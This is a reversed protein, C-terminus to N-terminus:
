SPRDFTLSAWHSEWVVSDDAAARALRVANLLFRGGGQLPVVARGDADTRLTTRTVGDAERFIAIQIDAAGDGNWLLRVPLEDLGSAFPNALAVLELPMGIAADRDEPSPPGVQVLAKACRTYFEAFGTRPLDAALHAEVAGDLGEYDAYDVFTTWDDYDLRDATSHYTIVYLGPARAEYALSPIDGEDGVVDQSGAPGDVQYSIFRGSLYPFVSGKLNDGVKLDASIAGPASLRHSAPEIWFEHADASWSLGVLAAILAVACTRNM